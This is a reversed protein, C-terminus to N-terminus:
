HSPALIPSGPQAVSSQNTNQVWPFRIPWNLPSNNYGGATLDSPQKIAFRARHFPIELGGEGFTPEHPQQTVLLQAMGGGLWGFPLGWTFSRFPRDGLPSLSQGPALTYITPASGEGKATVAIPTQSSRHLILSFGGSQSEKQAEPIQTGAPQIAIAKELKTSDFWSQWGFTHGVQLVPSRSGIPQVKSATMAM